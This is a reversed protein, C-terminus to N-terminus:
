SWTRRVQAGWVELLVSRHKSPHNEAPEHDDGEHARGSRTVGRHAHVDADINRSRRTEHDHRARGHEIRRAHMGVVKEVTALVVDKGVTEPVHPGPVIAGPHDHLGREHRPGDQRHRHRVIAHRGTVPPRPMTLRRRTPFGVPAAPPFLALVALSNSFLPALLSVFTALLAPVFTMTLAVFSAPASPPLQLRPPPALPEGQARAGKVRGEGGVLSPRHIGFLPKLRKMLDGLRRPLVEIRAGPVIEDAPGLRLRRELPVKVPPPRAVAALAEASNPTGCISLETHLGPSSATAAAASLKRM